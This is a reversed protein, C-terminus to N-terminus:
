REWPPPWDGPLRFDVAADEEIRRAVNLEPTNPGYREAALMVAQHAAATM